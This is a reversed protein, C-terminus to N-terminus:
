DGSCIKRSDSGKCKYPRPCDRDSDCRFMCYDGSHCRMDSPCDRDDRCRFTCIDLCTKTKCCFLDRDCDRDDRCDGGLDGDGNDCASLTSTLSLLCATLAFATLLRRPTPHPTLM